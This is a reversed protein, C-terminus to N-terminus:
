KQGGVETGEPKDSQSQIVESAISVDTDPRIKQLGSTVVKEGNKVGERIVTMDGEIPGLKVARRLVRNDDGVVMLHRGQQDMAIAKTPVRVAEYEASFPVQVRAFLGASLIGTNNQFTARIRTNGTGPDTTNNVFDIVGEWPFGEENALGMRVAIEAERANKVKGDLMRTRYDLVSQEDVEFEVYIPNVAVVTTLVTSDAAVLNGPTVLTQGLMGDIPSRVQTYDLDLQNRNATAELSQIQGQLDAVSAFSEDYEARSISNSDILKESRTLENNAQKLKAKSATLSGLSQQLGLEYPKPDIVFLLDGKKVLTGEVVTVKMRLDDNTRMRPTQLLYGSVRARVEVTDVASTRGTFERYEVINLISAQIVTVEPPPPQSTAPLKNSCGVLLVILFLTFYTQMSLSQEFQGAFPLKVDKLQYEEFLKDM